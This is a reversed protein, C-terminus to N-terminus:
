FDAKVAWDMWQVSRLAMATKKDVGYVQQYFDLIWEHVKIDAFRKPYSAKAIVMLDIPHELRSADCNSPTWPLSFVRRNKVADLEQLMQYYPATYLEEPPHYGFSTPLIIVDPNIAFVQETSILGKDATYRDVNYASKAHVINEIYYKVIGGRVNGAGGASRSKPSLGFALVRPKEDEPIDKTREKIMVVRKQIEDAVHIAKEEKGFIRGIIRIEEPINDLDPDQYHPPAYLVVVPIRLSEIAGISKNLTQASLGWSAACTGVRIIVVDPDLGALAEYNIGSGSEKVLPLDGFGPNLYLVPNMGNEYSHAKGSISPFTKQSVTKLSRSGLGVIKHSEGLITIIGETLGDDITVVRDIKPPITVKEGRLDTVIRHDQGALAMAHGTLWVVMALIVAATTRSFTM